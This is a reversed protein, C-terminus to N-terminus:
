SVPGFDAQPQRHTTREVLEQQKVLQQRRAAVATADNIFGELITRCELSQGPELNRTRGAQTEHDRGNPYCTGPEIGVAYGDEVAVPNKWITLNPMAELDWQLCLGHQGSEATLMATGMEQSDPAPAIFYVTEECGRSPAALQSWREIQDAAIANRPAVQTAVVDLQSGAAAVPPGFNWHQLFLVGAPRGGQNTITDRLEIQAARCSISLRSRLQLRHFHFLVDEVWTEIQIADQDADYAITAAQCPLQALTGHLPQCLRGSSDFQPGGVNGLGCRALVEDFGALWGLGDPRYLPVLNPHVPGPIPSQWGLSVGDFGLHTIGGGRTLAVELQVRPTTVTVVQVGERMGGSLTRATVVARDRDWDVTSAPVAHDGPMLLSGQVASMGGLGATLPVRWNGPCFGATRSLVEVAGAPDDISNYM